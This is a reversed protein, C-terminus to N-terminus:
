KIFLELWYIWQIELYLGLLIFTMERYYKPLADIAIIILPIAVAVFREGYLGMLSSFFFMGTMIISYGIIISKNKQKGNYDCSFLALLLSIAMWIFSYTLSSSGYTTVDVRRDGAMALIIPAIYRITISIAISFFFALIYYSRENFKSYLFLLIFYIGVFLLSATHILIACITFFIALFQKKNKISFALLLLSFALAIRTQGMILDIFMPNFFFIIALFPNIKRFTFFAYIILSFFAILYFGSLYADKNFINALLQLIYKWLPESFFYSIGRYIIEIGGNALYEMRYIYNNIDPFAHFYSWDIIYVYFFSFFLSMWFLYYKKKM